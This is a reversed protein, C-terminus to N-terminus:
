QLIADMVVKAMELSGSANPHIHDPFYEPKGIFPTHLDIVQAGTLRSIQDVMPIVEGAIVSERIGWEIAFAPVPKCVFVVPKSELAKFSEILEVYDSVFEAKHQWNQPKSDNTGLKIIVVEPLFGLAEEYAPEIWYPMDGQKLLTRGSVGFNRVEYDDGLLTGLQAPYAKNERDAIGAGFTISDGVCAIRTPADAFLFVPLLLVLLILRRLM